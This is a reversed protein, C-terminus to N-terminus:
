DFQFIWITAGDSGGPPPSFIVNIKNFLAYDLAPYDGTLFFINKNIHTKNLPSPFCRAIPFKLILNTAPSSPYFTDFNGWTPFSVGSAPHAPQPNQSPRILQFKNNDLNGEDFLYGALKSAFFIQFYDGSRKRQYFSGVQEYVTENKVPFNKFYFNAAQSGIGSGIDKNNTFYEQMESIMTSIKQQKAIFPQSSKDGYTPMHGGPPPTWMEHIDWRPKRQLNIRYSTIPLPETNGDILTTADSNSSYLWSLNFFKNSDKFQNPKYSFDPADPTTKSASDGLTENCHISHIFIRETDSDHTPMYKLIKNRITDGTDVVFFVHKKNKGQDVVPICREFINNIEYGFKLAGKVLKGDAATKQSIKLIQVQTTGSVTNITQSTWTYLPISRLFTKGNQICPIKVSGNPPNVACNPWTDPPTIQNFTLGTIQDNNSEDMLIPYNQFNTGCSGINKSLSKSLNSNNGNRLLNAMNSGSIECTGVNKGAFDHYTEAKVFACRHWEANVDM